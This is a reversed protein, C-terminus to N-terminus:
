RRDLNVALSQLSARTAHGLKGAKVSRCDNRGGSRPLALFNGAPCCNDPSVAPYLERNISANSVTRSRYRSAGSAAIRPRRKVGGLVVDDVNQGSPCKRRDDREDDVAELRM